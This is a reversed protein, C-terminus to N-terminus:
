TIRKDYKLIHRKNKVSYRFRLITAKKNTKIEFSNYLIWLNIQTDSLDYGKDVGKTCTPLVFLTIQDLYLLIPQKDNFNIISDPKTLYLRWKKKNAGGNHVSLFITSTKVM